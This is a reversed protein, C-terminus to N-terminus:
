RIVVAKKVGVSKGDAEMRLFYIGAGVQEGSGNLGDWETEHRGAPMDQDVLERVLRGAVDHVSLRIRGARSLGYSITTRTGFPNPRNSRVYPGGSEDDAIQAGTVDCLVATEARARNTSPDLDGPWASVLAENRVLLEDLRATMAVVLSDGAALTGLECTVTGALEYCVGQPPIVSILAVGPPLVDTLVVDGAEVPGANFVRIAYSLESGLSVPGAPGTKTLVLDTLPPLSAPSFNDFALGAETCTGSYTVEIVWIDEDVDFTWLSAVGDGTGPDGATLTVQDIVTSDAALARVNWREWCTSAADIDLIVGSAQRVGTGYLVRLGLPSNPGANDDTLFFCGVGQEAAPKDEVSSEAQCASYVPPGYFATQPPGVRAIRPGVSSDAGILEFRIWYPAVDYQEHILLGDTTPSGDPLTEFDITQPHSVGVAALPLGLLLWQRRM